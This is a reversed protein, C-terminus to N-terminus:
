TTRFGKKGSYRPGLIDGYPGRPEKRRAPSHSESVAHWGPFWLEAQADGQAPDVGFDGSIQSFTLETGASSPHKSATKLRERGQLLASAGRITAPVWPVDNCPTNM